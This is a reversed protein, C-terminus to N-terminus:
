LKRLENPEKHNKGIYNNRLFNFLLKHIDLVIERFTM